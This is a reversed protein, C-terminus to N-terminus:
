NEDPEFLIEDCEDCTIIVDSEVEMLLTRKVTEGDELYSNACVSCLIHGVSEFIFDYGVFNFENTMPELEGQKNRMDKTVVEWM